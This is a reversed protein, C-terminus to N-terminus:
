VQQASVTRNQTDGMVPKAIGALQSQAKSKEANKAQASQIYKVLSYVGGGIAGLVGIPAFVSALTDAIGGEAAAAAIAADSGTDASDVAADDAATEAGEDNAAEEDPAIGTQEAESLQAMEQQTKQEAAENAEAAQSSSTQAQDDMTQQQEQQIQEALSDQGSPGAEDIDLDIESDDPEGALRSRRGANKYEALLDQRTQEFMEDFEPTNFREDAWKPDSRMYEAFSDPDLFRSLKEPNPNRGTIIKIGRRIDGMDNLAIDLDGAADADGFKDPGLLAQMEIDNSADTGSVRKLYAKASAFPKAIAEKAKGFFGSISDAAGGLGDRAKSALGTVGDFLNGAKNLADETGQVLDVYNDTGLAERLQGKGKDIAGLVGKEATNALSSISDQIDDLAGRGKAFVKDLEKSASDLASRPLEGSRVKGAIQSVKDFATEFETKLSGFDEVKNLTDPDIGRIKAIGGKISNYVDGVSKVARKGTQGLLMASDVGTETAREQKEEEGQTARTAEAQIQQVLSSYASLRNQYSQLSM